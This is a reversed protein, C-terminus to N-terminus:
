LEHYNLRPNLPVITAGLKAAALLTMLWEPWNPMDIAIRDGAEIGLESLAAALAAARAEVQGYTLSRGGAVLLTRQPHEAARAGFIYALNWSSSM